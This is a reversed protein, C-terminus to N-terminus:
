GVVVVVVVVMTLSGAQGPSQLLRQARHKETKWGM